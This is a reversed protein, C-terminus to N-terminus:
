NNIYMVVPNMVVSYDVCEVAYNHIQKALSDRNGYKLLLKKYWCVIEDIDIKSADNPFDLNFDCPFYEFVDTPSGNLVPLGKALYERSKLASSWNIKNKYFGLASIGIDCMDYIKELDTGYKKGYYFIYPQLQNEKTLSKYYNLEPGEGVVHLEVHTNRNKQQYYHQLGKIIRELGHQKQMYGVFLLILSETYDKHKVISLSKVDIGNMERITKINFIEDDNSYTVLRDITDKYNKRYIRDKFLSLKNIIGGYEDKEYPYTYIEIIIKCHEYQKRVSKLFSIFDHDATVKRIYIFDPNDMINLVTKYDRVASNWPMRRQVKYFSTNPHKEYVPIYTINFHRSFENCQMQIKKLVGLYEETCEQYGCPFIYYGKKM